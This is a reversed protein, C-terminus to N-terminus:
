FAYGLVFLGILAVFFVAWVSKRWAFVKQGDLPPFPIMNFLALWINIQMALSFVDITALRIPVLFHLAFFVGALVINIVPGILSVLAYKKKDISTFRGWVDARPQIFVAGPAAFVFGFLSFIMALALGFPWMKFEAYYGYKRALARHGLEHLVFGLSVAIFSVVLLASYNAGLIGMIGDAFAIAFAVTLAATAIVIDRVEYSQM